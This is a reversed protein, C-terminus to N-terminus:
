KIFALNQPLPKLRKKNDGTLMVIEIGEEQLAKIANQATSKVPDEIVLIAAIEQEIAMYMVSAGHARLGEAKEQFVSVDAHEEEMLLANGIAINRGTITGRVGKGSPADFHTVTELTLSKEQAALVIARALPHESNNELSAALTLAETETIKTTVLQTLKPHGETLTGTKDVVLMNVKELQELSQANKILVGHGAGKGIGVMISMPTALGLACPCAIILVSVAAILGYSFAPSPGVFLWIVFALLAILIVIPVFWSAVLDALRQIPARSRQADSVMQVIRQLMTDRGVHIAKMIFSGTQNITGGIVQSGTEKSVPIPEGTIMSEDINSYGEIIEGDVPIKEGPRVRLRDGTEIAEISIEQELNNADLRHATDPALNLLARIAGGTKERAKLELVQGLLVLTTIVAAAEFYVAVIGQENRFTTPFLQPFLTAIVSYGWAIGTGIAILTFMNLHGTTLSHWARVFFALWVM